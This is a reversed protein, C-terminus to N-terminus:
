ENRRRAKRIQSQKQVIVFKELLFDKDMFPERVISEEKKINGLGCSKGQKRM